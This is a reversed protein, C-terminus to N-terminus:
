TSRFDFACSRRTIFVFQLHQYFDWRAHLKIKSKMKKSDKDSFLNSVKLFDVDGM